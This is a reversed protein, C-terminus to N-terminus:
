NRTYYYIDRLVISNCLREFYIVDKQSGCVMVCLMSNIFKAISM